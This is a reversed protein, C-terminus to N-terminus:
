HQPSNIPIVAGDTMLEVGANSLLYDCRDLEDPSIHGLLLPMEHGTAVKVIAFERFGFQEYFSRSAPVPVLVVTWPEKTLMTLRALLLATGFGRKHHKPHVLGFSLSARLMGDTRIMIGACGCLEGEEEAVLFLTTNGKLAAEFEPLIGVPFRGPENLVYLERCATYDEPSYPRIKGSMTRGKARDVEIEGARPAFLRKLWGLM